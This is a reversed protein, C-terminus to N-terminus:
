SLLLGDRLVCAPPPVGLHCSSRGERHHVRRQEAQRYAKRSVNGGRPSSQTTVLGASVADFTEFPSVFAGSTFVEIKIRGGTAAGIRQALRDASSQLGPSGAPWDTVMKLHRIGQAIAPAPFSLSAGTALSGAGTLIDRRRYLFRM